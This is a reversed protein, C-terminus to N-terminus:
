VRSTGTNISQRAGAFFRPDLAQLRARVVIQHLREGGALQDGPEFRLQQPGFNMGDLFRVVAAQRRDERMRGDRNRDQFPRLVNEFERIFGVQLQDCPPMDDALGHALEKRLEFVLPDVLEEIRDVRRARRKQGVRQPELQMAAGPPVTVGMQQLLANLSQSTFPTSTTQDGTGDLGVVLGYGVLPNSRVGQVSALEKIRAAQAPAPWWLAASVLLLALAILARLFKDTKDM